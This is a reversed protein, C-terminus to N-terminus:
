HILALWQLKSITATALLLMMRNAEFDFYIILSYQAITFEKSSYKFKFKM